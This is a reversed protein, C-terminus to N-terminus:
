NESSVVKLEGGRVAGGPKLGQELKCETVITWSLWICRLM